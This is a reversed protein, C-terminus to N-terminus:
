YMEVTSRGRRSVEKIIQRSAHVTNNVFGIGNINNSYMKM